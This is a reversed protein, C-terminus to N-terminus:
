PSPLRRLPVAFRDSSSCIASLGLAPVDHCVRRGFYVSLRPVFVTTPGFSALIPRTFTPIGPSGNPGDFMVVGGGGGGAGGAAPLLPPSVGEGPELEPSPFRGRVPPVTGAGGAGTVDRPTSPIGTSRPGEDPGDRGIIGPGVRFGCRGM